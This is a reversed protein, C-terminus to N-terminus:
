RTHRKHLRCVRYRAQTTGHRLPKNNCGVYNRSQTHSAERMREKSLKTTEMVNEPISKSAPSFFCTTLGTTQLPSNNPGHVSSAPQWAQLCSEGPSLPQQPLFKGIPLGVVAITSQSNMDPKNNFGQFPLPSTSPNNILSPACKRTQSLFTPFSLNYAALQTLVRSM